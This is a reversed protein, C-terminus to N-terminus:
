PIQTVVVNSAFISFKESASAAIIDQVFTVNDRSISLLTATFTNSVSYVQAYLNSARAIENITYTKSAIANQIGVVDISAGNIPQVTLSVYLPVVTPRDFSIAHLYNFTSGDPKTIIETFTGNVAGKTAVGATRNKAIAMTIDAIDGGDLVCWIAHPQLNLVADITDAKNEYVKLDVVGILNALATYLGGITTNLPSSLSKNRRIRLAADTEEAKGAVAALQNNVSVVGLIITSPNTVTNADAIVNGFNKAFLTVQTVGASLTFTSDTVWIQNNADAVAYGIPLQVTRDTTIDVTVTSRTPVGRSIGSLKIIKNLQEGTAFDPDLQTYLSLALTQIDLRAKAEIGIRQGDPSSPLVNIDAGYISQYGLVLEDYIEQYTPTMQFNM